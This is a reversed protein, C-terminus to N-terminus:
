DEYVPVVERDRLEFARFADERSIVDGYNYDIDSLNVKHADLCRDGVCERVVIVRYGHQIGDVATARIGGSTPGGALVITDIGQAQLTMDLDTGFFASPFQKTVITEGMVPAVAECFETLPNGVKMVNMFPKKKLWVGGDALDPAFYKTHAHVVPIRSERAFSLLETAEVAARLM